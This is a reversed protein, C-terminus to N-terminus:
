LYGTRNPFLDNREIWLYAKQLRWPFLTQKLGVVGEVAPEATAPCVRQDPISRVYWPSTACPACRVEVYVDSLYEPKPIGQEIRSWTWPDSRKKSVHLSLM